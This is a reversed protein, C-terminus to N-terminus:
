PTWTMELYAAEWGTKRFGLREYLRVAASTELVHLKLPKDSTVAENMLNRILYSGIGSNRYTTLLAIDTLCIAADTRDVLIRGVPDGNLVIIRNDARPYSRERAIFQTKLFSSKQNEDWGLGELEESRTSAYVELLFSEDATTAARLSINVSEDQVNVM